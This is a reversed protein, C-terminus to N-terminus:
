KLSAPFLNNSVSANKANNILFYMIHGIDWGLVTHDRRICFETNALPTPQAVHCGREATACTTFGTDFVAKRGASSFHFFRGFPFAFHAVGGCRESLIRYTQHLDDKVQNEPTEAINMHM